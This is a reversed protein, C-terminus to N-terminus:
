SSRRRQKERLFAVEVEDDRVSIENRRWESDAETTEAPSLVEAKRRTTELQARNDDIRQRLSGIKVALEERHRTLTEAFREAELRRRVVARALDDNGARFCVEMEENARNLRAETDTIRACLQREQQVLRRLRQEDQSLVAEMERVAQALLVDPEELRDLVAHADARFLRSIRTILAM